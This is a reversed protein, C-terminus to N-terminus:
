DEVRKGRVGEDEEPPLTTDLGALPPLEDSGLLRRVQRGFRELRGEKYLNALRMALEELSDYAGYVAELRHRHMSLWVFLDAETRGPFEALLGSDHIIQITPLYILEYWDEVAEEYPKEYGDIEALKQRLDEIQALLEDYRCPATFPLNHAPYRERLGTQELFRGEELRILVEDFSDEPTITAAAPFEWVHAEVSPINLQRAVSVRHHGDKVFYVDGVQYLEVPPWGDQALTLTDVGVWRERMDDRLPLFQRTFEHYRGVSGVIKHLEVERLGRYLQNQQRLRSRIAAFPLIRNDRGTLRAALQDLRAQRRAQEFHRLAESRHKLQNNM